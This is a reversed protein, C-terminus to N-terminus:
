SDVLFDPISLNSNCLFSDFQDKDKKHLASLIIRADHKFESTNIPNRTRDFQDEGHSYENHIRQIFPANEKGFFMIIKEDNSQKYDPYKFYLLTEIFKRGNNPFNYFVSYNDETEDDTAVRYIQEFLFVFETVKNKLHKPLRKIYSKAPEDESQKLKEILYYDKQSSFRNTYKLFDLNHTSLFYQLFEKKEILCYILNYIYFMNNEDLSSIPDDIFLITKLKEEPSLSELRAIYYAFAILSKEGESLNYAREENRSVEFYINEEADISKLSIESHALSNQLITNIRKVAEAESKLSSELNSIDNEFNEKEKELSNYENNLIEIDKQYQYVKQSLSTFESVPFEKALHYRRLFDISKQKRNEFQEIQEITSNYLSDIEVQIESFDVWNLDDIEIKSFIDRQKDLIGSELVKLVEKRNSIINRIDKNINIITSTSDKFYDDKNIDRITDLRQIESIIREKQSELNRELSRLEDSFALKLNKIFESNIGNGCFICKEPNDGHIDVGQKIWNIKESDNKYEDLITSVSVVKSLLNKTDKLFLIFNFSADFKVLDIKDPEDINEELIKIKAQEIKQNLEDIAEKDDSSPIIPIHSSQNEFEEKIDRIDYRNGIVVSPNKLNKIKSATKRLRSNLDDESSELRKLKKTRDSEIKLLQENRPEVENLRLEEIRRLTENTDSGISIQFSNLKNDNHLYINDDIFQQNFVKCDIPLEDSEIINSKIISKNALKIEFDIDGYNDPLKKLEISQFIKSYTSKGSYNRGYFINVEGSNFDNGIGTQKYQLYDKYCGFNKIDIKKIELSSM